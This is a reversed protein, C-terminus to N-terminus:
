RREMIGQLPCRTDTTCPPNTLSPCRLPGFFVFAIQKRRQLGRRGGSSRTYCCQQERANSSLAGGGGPWLWRCGHVQVYVVWAEAVRSEAIPPDFPRPMCRPVMDPLAHSDVRVTPRSCERTMM